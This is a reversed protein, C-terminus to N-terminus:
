ARDDIAVDKLRSLASALLRRAYFRHLGTLAKFLLNEVQKAQPIVATGFRLATGAATPEAMLWSRTRGQYDCLMIQIGTRAEVTWASFRQTRGAALLAVDADTARLGLLVGIAWREPRFVRSSFFARILKELSVPHPLHCELCDVYAGDGRYRELLAGPPLARETILPLGSM